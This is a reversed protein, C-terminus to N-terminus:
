QSQYSFRLDVHVEIHEDMRLVGLMKSLGGIEYEKLNVPFDSRVRLGQDDFSQTAPLM